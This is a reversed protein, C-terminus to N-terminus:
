EKYEQYGGSLSSAIREAAASLSLRAGSSDGSLDPIFMFAVLVKRAERNKPCRLALTSFEFYSVGRGKEVADACLPATVDRGKQCWGRGDFKYPDQLELYDYDATWCRGTGNGCPVGEVCASQPFRPWLCEARPARKVYDQNRRGGQCFFGYRCRYPVPPNSEGRETLPPLWYSRTPYPQVFGGLCAADDPCSKCEFGGEQFLDHAYYNTKCSCEFRSTARINGLPYTASNVPCHLCAETPGVARGDDARLDAYIFTGGDARVPLM